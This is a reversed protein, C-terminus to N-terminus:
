GRLRAGSARIAALAALNAVLGAKMDCAGRAHVVDGTVKPVFPYGRWQAADGPPVVDVHGQLILTPGDGGGPTVAALGWAEDRPAETGPFETDARLALLDMAWLDVELGLADLRRALVHQLESEAASGTISPIALLELLTRAIAAEDVAALADAETATLTTTM